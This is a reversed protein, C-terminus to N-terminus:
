SFDDAVLIRRAPNGLPRHLQHTFREGVGWALGDLGLDQRIEDGLPRICL